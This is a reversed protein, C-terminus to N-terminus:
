HPTPGDPKCRSIISDESAGNLLLYYIQQTRYNDKCNQLAKRVRPPLLDYYFMMQAHPQNEKRYVGHKIDTRSPPTYKKPESNSPSSPPNTWMTGFAGKSM